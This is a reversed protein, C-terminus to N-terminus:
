TEATLLKEPDFDLLEPNKHREKRWWGDFHRQSVAHEPIRSAYFQYLDEESVMLDRRRLRTELAEVQAIRELNRKFFHHRTSWDGELLAHRIFLERAM